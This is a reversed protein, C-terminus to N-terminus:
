FSIVYFINGFYAPRWNETFQLLKWQPVIKKNSKKSHFFALSEEELFGSQSQILKDFSDVDLDRYFPNFPSVFVAPRKYFPPFMEDFESKVSFQITDPKRNEKKFFGTISRLGSELKKKKSDDATKKSTAPSCEVTKKTPTQVEERSKPTPTM